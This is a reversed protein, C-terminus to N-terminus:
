ASRAPKLPPAVIWCLPHARGGYYAVRTKRNEWSGPTRYEPVWERKVYAPQPTPKRKTAM